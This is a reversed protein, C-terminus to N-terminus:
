TNSNYENFSASIKFNFYIKKVIPIEGTLDNLSKKHYFDRESKDLLNESM